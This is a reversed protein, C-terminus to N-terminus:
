ENKEGAQKLMEDVMNWEYDTTIEELKINGDELQYASALIEMQGNEDKSGDTYIIYNKNNTPNNFTLLIYCVVERGNVTIKFALEEDLRSLENKSDMICGRRNKEM